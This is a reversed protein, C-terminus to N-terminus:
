IQRWTQMRNIDFVLLSNWLLMKEHILYPYKDSLKLYLEELLDKKMFRRADIPSRFSHYERQIIKSSRIFRSSPINSRGCISMAKGITCIKPLSTASGETNTGNGGNFDSLGLGYVFASVIICIYWFSTLLTQGSNTIHRRSNQGTRIRFESFSESSWNWIHDSFPLSVWM